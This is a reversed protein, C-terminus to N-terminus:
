HGAPRAPVTSAITGGPGALTGDQRAIAGRTGGPPPPHHAAEGVRQGPDDVWWLAELPMVRPAEGREKRLLFHAGYSVAYLAQLAETFETGGPAGKGAVVAFGFEPVDIIDVAGKRIKLLSEFSIATVTMDELTVRSLPRDLPM